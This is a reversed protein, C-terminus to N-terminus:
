ERAVASGDGPRDEGRAHRDKMEEEALLTKLTRRKVPDSTEALLRRFRAINMQRIDLAM